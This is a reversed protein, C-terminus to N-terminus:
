RESDPRAPEREFRWERAPPDLAPFDLVRLRGVVGPALVVPAVRLEPELEVVIAARGGPAHVPTGDARGRALVRRTGASGLTEVRFRPPAREEGQSRWSAIAEFREVCRPTQAPGLVVLDVRAGGAVLQSLEDCLDGGCEGGLDSFVVVRSRALRREDALRARLAALGAALSAEGGTELARLEALLAERGGGAPSAWSRLEPECAAVAEPQLAHLGLASATALAPVLRAAARRAAELRGAGASTARAMSTTADILIEVRAPVEGASDPPAAFGGMWEVAVQAPPAALGVCPLTLVAIAFAYPAGRM